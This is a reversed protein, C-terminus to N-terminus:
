GGAEEMLKNWCFPADGAAPPGFPFGLRGAPSPSSLPVLAPRDLTQAPEEDSEEQLVEWHPASRRRAPLPPLRPPPLVVVVISPREPHEDSQLDCELLGVRRLYLVPDGLVSSPWVGSRLQQSFMPLLILQSSTNCWLFGDASPLRESKIM